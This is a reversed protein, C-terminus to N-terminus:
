DPGRRAHDPILWGKYRILLGLGPVRASIDFRFRSQADEGETSASRPLLFGPCPIGLLCLRRIEIALGTDTAVPQLWITLGGIQERVYGRRPDFSIRSYTQHGAFDRDWRWCDGIKRIDLTVPLDDGEPPFGAIRLAFAILVGRGRTISCRGSYRGEGRHLAKVSDPLRGDAGIVQLFPDAKSDM